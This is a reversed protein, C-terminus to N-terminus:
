GEYSGSQRPTSSNKLFAAKREIVERLSLTDDFWALAESDIWSMLEQADAIDREVRRQFMPEVHAARNRIFTMNGLLHSVERQRARLDSNGYPFAQHLVPVWLSSHYRRTTLFRWFGFPLEAVVRDHDPLKNKRRVRNRASSIDAKAREDLVNGDFWDECPEEKVWDTLIRDISNRVVVEVMATAGQLASALQINWSYLEFADHLDGKAANIYTEMRRVSLVHVMRNKNWTGDTRSM